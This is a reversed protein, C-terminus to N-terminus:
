RSGCQGTRAVFGGQPTARKEGPIYHRTQSAFLVDFCGVSCLCGKRLFSVRDFVAQEVKPKEQLIKGAEGGHNVAVPIPIDIPVQVKRCHCDCRVHSELERSVELVFSANVQELDDCMEVRPTLECGLFHDPM